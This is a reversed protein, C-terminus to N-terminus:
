ARHRGERKIHAGHRNRRKFEPQQEESIPLVGIGTGDIEISEAPTLREITDSLPKERMFLLVALSLLVLPTIWLFVPTLADNYSGIILGRVGDPLASVIAPTLSNPGGSGIPTGPLREALMDKLNAVFLTGVVSAGLSMGMTRFYTNTSVATGIREVAFENQVVLMLTQMSMGLGIGLVVLYACIHWIQMAPTLTSLLLLAGGIIVMGVVPAWKYRGTRSIVQGVVTTTLLMGFVMPLMLYGSQTASYGTVMQMYTPLYALTGMMVIGLVLGAVMVLVFNRSTFLWGPMVPDKARREAFVFAVACAAAGVFLLVIRPSGWPYTSGGWSTALVIMTSVAGLLCIGPYDVRPRGEPSPLRPIFAAAAALALLGLPINIWFTWRWNTVFGLVGHPDTLWGGIMPGIVAPITFVAGFIWSYKARERPTILHTMISMAQIMLGGGGIGQIARGVILWSMSNALGGVVSGVIFLAIAVLFLRKHGTQDGLKGYVPLMVAMALVYSTTVWLMHEVGHLEGVITPLATGFAIQNLAALFMAVMLGAFLPLKRQGIDVFGAVPESM